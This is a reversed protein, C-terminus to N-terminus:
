LHFFACLWRQAHSRKSHGFYSCGAPETSHPLELAKLRTNMGGVGRRLRVVGLRGDDLRTAEGGDLEWVFDVGEILTKPGSGRHDEHHPTRRTSRISQCFEPRDRSPM